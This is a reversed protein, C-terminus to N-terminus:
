CAVSLLPGMYVDSRHLIFSLAVPQSENSNLQTFIKLSKPLLRIQAFIILTDCNEEHKDTNKNYHRNREISKLVTKM